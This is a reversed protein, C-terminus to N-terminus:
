EPVFGPFIQGMMETINPSVIVSTKFRDEFHSGTIFSPNPKVLLRREVPSNDTIIGDANPVQATRLCGITNMWYPIGDRISGEMKPVFLGDQRLKAECTFVATRLPNQIDKVLDRLRKIRTEMRYLLQGWDKYQMDGNSELAAKCKSQTETVSDMIVAQFPHDRQVLWNVALDVTEWRLIDAVCIDWTGDDKPPAQSPDDWYVVRYAEGPRNPNERGDFANWSGEADLALKTGPATAALSSKGTKTNGYIFFSANHRQNRTTM